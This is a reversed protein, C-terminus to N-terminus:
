RERSASRSQSCWYAAIPLADSLCFAPLDDAQKFRAALLYFRDIGILQLAPIRLSRPRVPSALWRIAAHLPDPRGALGSLRAFDSLQRVLQVAAFQKDRGESIVLTGTTRGLVPLLSETIYKRQEASFRNSNWKIEDLASIEITRKCQLMAGVAVAPDPLLIAGLITHFKGGIECSSDDAYFLGGVPNESISDPKSYLPM